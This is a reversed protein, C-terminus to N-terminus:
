VSLIPALWRAIAGTPKLRGRTIVLCVCEADADAIPRHVIGPDAFEVDGRTFHGFESTYGGALVMTFEDDTHGHHPIRTGGAIRLLGMRNGADDVLLPAYQVGAGKWRWGLEGLERSVYDRLPRPLDGAQAVAPMRVPARPSVAPREDLRSMVSDLATTAMQAPRLQEVLEGGVAEACRVAKRCSPCLALHTATLVSTAEDLSGSAYGLLLDEPPHHLATM